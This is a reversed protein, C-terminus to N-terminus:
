AAGFRENLIARIISSKRPSDLDFTIGNLDAVALLVQPGWNEDLYRHTRERDRGAQVVENVGAALGDIEEQDQLAELVRAMGVATGVFRQAMALSSIISTLDSAISALDRESTAVKAEDVLLALRRANDRVDRYAEEQMARFDAQLKRELMKDM